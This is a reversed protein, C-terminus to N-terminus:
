FNELNLMSDYAFVRLVGLENNEDFDEQTVANQMAHEFADFSINEPVLYLGMVAGTIDDTVQALKYSKGEVKLIM